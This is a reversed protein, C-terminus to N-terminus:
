HLLTSLPHNPNAAYLKGQYGSELMNKFVVWGVPDVRSSAGIVAVFRPSFLPNLYHRNM